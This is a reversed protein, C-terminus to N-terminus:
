YDSSAIKVFGLCITFMSSSTWILCSPNAQWGLLFSFNIFFLIQQSCLSKFVDQDPHFQTACALHHRRIEQRSGCGKDIIFWGLLM